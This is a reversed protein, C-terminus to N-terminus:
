REEKIEYSYGDFRQLRRFHRVGIGQGIRTGNRKIDFDGRRRVTVTGRLIGAYKGKPVVAKVLDGTRFGAVEKQRMLYGRPFGYRDVNTRRYTGRGKARISLTRGLGEIRSPTSKGVCVADLAHTKPLGLRSRNFKTRGGTGVELPLGTDKLIRFLAWRTANMAAADKLPRKAKEHVKPHGYEAATKAGKELNCDACSLTLNSARNSGGRSKPVIHEIQLPVNQVGCYACKRDWKNLLYERLEYGALTGQQYEIGSIEPTEMKQTDFRALETSVSSVPALKRLRNVWSSMQDLRAQLTPPLRGKRRSSARNLFRPPRHRLNASRRRRRYNRRQIMRKHVGPKHHLEALFLAEDRRLLALGTTKSGPDIKLRVPQVKGGVRDKLRITFPQLKHVVARGRKLLIRARAPCTPMLPRHRKDLVFVKM